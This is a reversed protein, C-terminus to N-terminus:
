FYSLPFGLNFSVAKLKDGGASNGRVLSFGVRRLPIFGAVKVPKRLGFTFGLQYLNELVVSEGSVGPIAMDDIFYQWMLFISGSVPKGDMSWPLEYNWDVGNEFLVFGQEGSGSSVVHQGAGLLRNGLGVRHKGWDWWAYSRVGASYMWATTGHEFDQAVGAHVEPAIKWNDTVQYDWALGPLLSGTMLRDPLEFNGDDDRLDRVGVGVPLLFNVSSRESPQAITWQLPVRAIFVRETATTYFGTGLVTSYVYNFETERVTDGESEAAAPTVNALLAACALVHHLSLRQSPMNATVKRSHEPAVISAADTASLHGAM